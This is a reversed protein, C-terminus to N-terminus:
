TLDEEDIAFLAYKAYMNKAAKYCVVVPPCFDHFNSIFLFRDVGNGLSYPFAASGIGILSFLTSRSLGCVKLAVSVGFFLAFLNYCTGSVAVVRFFKRNESSKWDM